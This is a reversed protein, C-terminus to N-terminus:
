DISGLRIIAAAAVGVVAAEATDVRAEAEAVVEAVLGAAEVVAVAGLAVAGVEAKACQALRM